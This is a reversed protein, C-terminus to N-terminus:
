EKFTVSCHTVTTASHFFFFIDVIIVHDLIRLTTYRITSTCCTDCTYTLIVYLKRRICIRLTPFIMRPFQTFHYKNRVYYRFCTKRKKKYIYISCSPIIKFCKQHFSTLMSIPLTSVLIIVPYRAEKRTWNSVIWYCDSLIKKKIFLEKNM